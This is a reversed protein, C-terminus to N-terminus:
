PWRLETHLDLSTVLPHGDEALTRVQLRDPLGVITVSEWGKNGRLRLLVEDGETLRRGALWYTTNDSFSRVEVKPM